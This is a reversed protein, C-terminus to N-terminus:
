LVYNQFLSNMLFIYLSFYKIRFICNSIPSKYLFFMFILKVSFKFLKSKNVSIWHHMLKNKGGYSVIIFDSFTNVSIMQIVATMWQIWDYAIVTKNIYPIFLIPIKKYIFADIKKEKGWRSPYYGIEYFLFLM